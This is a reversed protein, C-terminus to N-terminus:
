IKSFYNDKSEVYNSLNFKMLNYFSISDISDVISCYLLKRILFERSHTSEPRMHMNYQSRLSCTVAFNRIGYPGVKIQFHGKKGRKTLFAQLLMSMPRNHYLLLTLFKRALGLLTLSKSKSVPFHKALSFTPRHCWTCPITLLYLHLTLEPGGQILTLLFGNLRLIWFGM